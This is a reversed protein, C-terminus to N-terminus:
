LTSRSLLGPLCQLANALHAYAYPHILSSMPPPTPAYKYPETPPYAHYLPPSSYTCTQFCLSPHVPDSVYRYTVAPSYAHYPSSLILCPHWLM